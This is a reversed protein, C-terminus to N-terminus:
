DESVVDLELPTAEVVREHVEDTLSQLADTSESLLLALLDELLDLLFQLLVPLVVVEVLHETQGVGFKVRIQEGVVVLFRLEVCDKGVEGVGPELLHLALPEFRAAHQPVSVAVQALVLGLCDDVLGNFQRTELSSM